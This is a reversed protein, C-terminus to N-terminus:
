RKVQLPLQVHVSRGCEPSDHEVISAEVNYDGARAFVANFKFVARGTVVLPRATVVVRDRKGIFAIEVREPKEDPKGGVFHVTLVFSERVGVRAEYKDLVACLVAKAPGPWIIGVSQSTRLAAICRRLEDSTALLIADPTGDRLLKREARTLRYERFV